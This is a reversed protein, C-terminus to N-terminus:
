SQGPLSGSFAFTLSLAFRVPRILVFFVFSVVFVFFKFLASSFRHVAASILDKGHM